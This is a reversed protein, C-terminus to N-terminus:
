AGDVSGVHQMRWLRMMPLWQNCAWLCRIKIPNTKWIALNDVYSDVALSVRRTPPQGRGVGKLRLREWPWRCVM